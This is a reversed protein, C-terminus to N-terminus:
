TSGMRNNVLQEILDRQLSYVSNTAANNFICITVLLFSVLNGSKSRIRSYSPFYYALRVSQLCSHNLKLCQQSYWYHLPKFKNINGYFQILFINKVLDSPNYRHCLISLLLKQRFGSMVAIDFHVADCRSFVGIKVCLTPLVEFRLCLRLFAYILKKSIKLVQLM